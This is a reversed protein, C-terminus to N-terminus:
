QGAAKAQAATPKRLAELHQQAMAYSDVPDESKPKEVRDYMKQAAEAMGYQEALLAFGLWMASNPEELHQADMAKLLLGRAQGPKGAQAYVCALTHLIAFNSKNTLDNARVAVDITEEEIPGPLFLAHWAYSNMDNATGQGKDIIAKIIARSKRFDGRASALSSAARVYALEQPHEKIRAQVLTEGEEFRGTKEYAQMALAFALVSNPLSKTLELTIPLMEAWRKQASYAYALKMTLRNREMETKASKQAEDLASLYPGKIERSPLLVLAATRITAIDAAQGKTWFHPFPPGELPDDGGSQHISDRARDLWERAAALNNKELQQLALAALQVPTTADSLSFALVKYRGGDRIVYANQAAAGAGEIIVKYGLTDNGDVTFHMNSVALDATVVLPLGSAAITEKLNAMALQFQKELPEESVTLDGYTLAKFEDFTMNGSLMRGFPLARLKFGFPAVFKYRWETTFPTIWWDATREKPKESDDDEATKKDEKTRFYQPLNDFLDEVRIAAVSDTLETIGRKGKAVCRVSAPKELDTLDGHELGTLSEALYANKVYNEASERIQKSEGGCYRRYDAEAPGIEDDTETITAMGFEAFTFERLERYVNQAATIEPIRKLQETSAAIVLAQRGYDMWPLTGVQSYQATADIWLEPDAGSAPVYVIAHDFGGMGPLEANIDQGSGSALLALNASVGAGRLMAVLLSAKDKCDGYKRKLTESPLQPVLSSEGFEVGTYRVNRHLSAVIRRIKDNRSGDKLNIKALV